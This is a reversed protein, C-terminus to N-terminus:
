TTSGAADHVLRGIVYACNHMDLYRSESASANVLWNGRVQSANSRIMHSFNPLLLPLIDAKDKKSLNVEHRSRPRQKTRQKTGIIKLM